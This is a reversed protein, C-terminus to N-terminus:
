TRWLPIPVDLYRGSIETYRQKIESRASVKCDRKAQRRTDAYGSDLLIDPTEGGKIRGEGGIGRPSPVLQYAAWKWVDGSEHVECYAPVKFGGLVTVLIVFWM